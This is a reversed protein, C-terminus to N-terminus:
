INIKSIVCVLLCFLLVFNVSFFKTSEESFYIKETLELSKLMYIICKESSRFIAIKSIFEENVVLQLKEWFTKHSYPKGMIM